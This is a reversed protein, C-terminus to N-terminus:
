SAHIQAFASRKARELACRRRFAFDSELFFIKRSELERHPICAFINRWQDGQRAARGTYPLSVMM